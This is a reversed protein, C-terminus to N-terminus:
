DCFFFIVLRETSHINLKCLFCDFFLLFLWFFSCFIVFFLWFFRVFFLLFCGFFYFFTNKYYIIAGVSKLRKQVGAWNYKIKAPILKSEAKRLFKLTMVKSIFPIKTIIQPHIKFQNHEFPSLVIEQIRTKNGNM